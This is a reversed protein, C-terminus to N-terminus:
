QEIQFLANLQRTANHAVVAYKPTYLMRKNVATGDDQTVVVSRENAVTTAARLLSLPPRPISSGVPTAAQLSQTVWPPTRHTPPVRPLTPM